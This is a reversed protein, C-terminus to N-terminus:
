AQASAEQIAAALQEGAWSVQDDSIVAPPAIL